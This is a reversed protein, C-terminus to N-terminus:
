DRGAVLGNVLRALLEMEEPRLETLPPRVPGAPRGVTRLGAKIISVAYGRGRKRLDVIPEVFERM